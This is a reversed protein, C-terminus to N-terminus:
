GGITIAAEFEAIVAQILEIPDFTEPLEEPPDDALTVDALFAVITGGSVGAIWVRNWACGPLGGFSAQQDADLDETLAPGTCDFQTGLVDIPRYVLVDFQTAVQGGFRADVSDTREQVTQHTTIRGTAQDVTETVFLLQGGIRGADTVKTLGIIRTTLADFEWGPESFEFRVPVLSYDHLYIRDPTARVPNSFSGFRPLLVPGPETTTTTPATTTTTTAVAATTTSVDPAPETTETQGSSCAAVVLILAVITSPRTM